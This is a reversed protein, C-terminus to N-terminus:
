QGKCSNSAEDYYSGEQCCLPGSKECNQGCFGEKCKCNGNSSNCSDTGDKICDCDISPSRIVIYLTENFNYANSVKAAIAPRMMTLDRKAVCPVLNKVIRDVSAKRVTANATPLTM